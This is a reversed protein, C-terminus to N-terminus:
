QCPGQARIKGTPVYILEDKELSRGLVAQAADRIEQLRKESLNDQQSYIRVAFNGGIGVGTIDPSAAALFITKFHHKVDEAQQRTLSM